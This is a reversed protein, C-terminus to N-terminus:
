PIPPICILYRRRSLGGGLVPPDQNDFHQLRVTWWLLWWAPHDGAHAARPSTPLVVGHRDLGPLYLEMDLSMGTVVPARRSEVPPVQPSIWIAQPCLVEDEVNLGAVVVGRAEQASVVRDYIYIHLGGHPEVPDKALRNLGAQVSGGAM